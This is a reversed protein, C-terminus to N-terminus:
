QPTTLLIDLIRELDDLSYFDLTITGTNRSSREVRVKTGYVARLRAELARVNEDQAPTARRTSPTKAPDHRVLDEVKRVSLSDTLIRRWLRLQSERSPLNVLARAHGMSIENKRISDVIQEPLKLLRIFNVVTSRDKGMKHAIMDHSYDCEDMLRKYSVAIEVPNLHERQINEILSLEIMEERTDVRRIYAPIHTVGALRCARLRREGSILQFDGNHRRVTVPQVLGNQRISEALENLAAENFELRPQYPNPEIRDIEVHALIGVTEGDDEPIAEPRTTVPEVEEPPLTRLLAGLGKGLVNKSKQQNM